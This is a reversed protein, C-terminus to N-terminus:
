LFDVQWHCAISTGSNKAEIGPNIWFHVLGTSALHCFIWVWLMAHKKSSWLLLHFM